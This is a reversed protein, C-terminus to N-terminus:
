FVTHKTSFDTDFDTALIPGFLRKEPRHIFQFITYSILIVMM